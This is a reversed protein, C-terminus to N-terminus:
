ARGLILGSDNAPPDIKAGLQRAHEDLEVPHVVPHTCHPAPGNSRMGSGSVFERRPGPTAPFKLDFVTLLPELNRRGAWARYPSLPHPDLHSRELTM